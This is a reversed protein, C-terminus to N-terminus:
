EAFGAELLIAKIWVIRRTDALEHTPLLLKHIRIWYANRFDGAEQVSLLEGEDAPQNGQNCDDGPKNSEQLHGSEKDCQCKTNIKM